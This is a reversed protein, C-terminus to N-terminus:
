RPMQPLTIGIQEAHIFAEQPLVGMSHAVTGWFTTSTVLGVATPVLTALSMAPMLSLAALGDTGM